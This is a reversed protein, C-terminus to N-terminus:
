LACVTGMTPLWHSNNGCLPSLSLLLGLSPLAGPPSAPLPPSWEEPFLRAPPNPSCRSPVGGYTVLVGLLLFSPLGSDEWLAWEWARWGVFGAGPVEPRVYAMPLGSGAM